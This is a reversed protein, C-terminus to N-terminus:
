NKLVQFCLLIVGKDFTKTEILKLKAIDMGDKFFHKGRGMIIPQVLFRYEDILDTKMLSEVLTASGLILVDGDQQQKLKTIEEVINEKIIISNSWEVKLPEPSVVYKLMSNLKQAPGNADNKENPWYSALMAHTVEGVLLAEAKRISEKIYEAREDSNYPIFWEGMSDADFVGDLTIWESVIIKRM